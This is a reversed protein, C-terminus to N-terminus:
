YLKDDKEVDSVFDNTQSTVETMMSSLCNKALSYFSDSKGILVRGLNDGFDVSDFLAQCTTHFEEFYGEIEEIKSSYYQCAGSYHEENVKMEM